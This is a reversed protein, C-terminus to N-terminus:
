HGPGRKSPGSALKFALNRILRSRSMENDSSVAFSATGIDTGSADRDEQGCGATNHVISSPSAGHRLERGDVLSSRMSLSLILVGLVVWLRPCENKAMSVALSTQCESCIEQNKHHQLLNFQHMSIPCCIYIYVYIYLTHGHTSPCSVKSNYPAAWRQVKADSFTM